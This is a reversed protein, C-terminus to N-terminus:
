KACEAMRMSGDAALLISGGSYTDIFLEGTDVFYSRGPAGPLSRWLEAQWDGGVGEKLEYVAGENSFMHALGTVAIYRQGLRYIDEVNAKLIVEAQASNDIFVLEGGWEGRDSGVLWGGNVKLGKAPVQRVQERIEKINDQHIEIVGDPNEARQEAEDAAIYSIREVKYALRDLEKAAYRSYLKADRPEEVMNGSISECSDTAFHQYAFFRGPFNRDEGLETGGQKKSTPLAAQRVHPHWHSAAAERLAEGAQVGGIRALAEAAVLNMVVDSDDNLLEVLKPVAPKYELYGITRAAGIRLERDHSKLLRAVVPGASKGRTKLESLDRLVLINPQEGLAKAFVEGAFESHIGILARDACNRVPPDERRLRLLDREVNIAPQGLSGIMCVMGARTEALAVDPLTNIIERAAHARTQADMEGLIYGVLYHRNAPCGDKCLSADILFPLAREGSHEVAFSIQNGGADGEKLYRKVAERAAEPDDIKGLAVPLWGLDRGSDLAAVIDPLYRPDISDMERLAVAAVQAVDIDTQAMLPVLERAAADGFQSLRRAVEWERESVTLYSAEAPEAVEFLKAM